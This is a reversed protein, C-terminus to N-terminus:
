DFSENSNVQNDDGEHSSCHGSSGESLSENSLQNSCLIALLNILPVILINTFGSVVIHVSLKETVTKASTNGMRMAFKM